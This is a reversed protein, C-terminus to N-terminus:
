ARKEKRRYVRRRECLEFRCPPPHSQFRQTSHMAFICRRSDVHRQNTYNTPIFARSVLVCVCVSVLACFNRTRASISWSPFFPCYNHSTSLIIFFFYFFYIFTWSYPTLLAISRHGASILWDTGVNDIAENRARM